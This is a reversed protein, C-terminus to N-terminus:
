SSQEWSTGGRSVDQSSLRTSSLDLSELPSANVATLPTPLIEASCPIAFAGDGRHRLACIGDKSAVHAPQAPLKGATKTPEDRTAFSGIVASALISPPMLCCPRM